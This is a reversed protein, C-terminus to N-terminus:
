KITKLKVKTQLNGLIALLLVLKNQPHMPITLAMELYEFTQEDLFCYVYAGFSNFRPLSRGILEMFPPCRKSIKRLLSDFKEKGNKMLSILTDAFPGKINYESKITQIAKKMSEWLNKGFHKENEISELDFPEAVFNIGKCSVNLTKVLEDINTGDFDDAVFLATKLELLNTYQIHGPPLQQQQQLGDINTGDVNLLATKRQQQQAQDLRQKQPKGDDNRKKGGYKLINTYM